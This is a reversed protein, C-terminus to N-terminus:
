RILATVKIMSKLKAESAQTSMFNVVVNEAVNDFKSCIKSWTCLLRTLPQGWDGVAFTAM